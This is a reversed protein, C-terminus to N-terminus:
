SCTCWSAATPPLAHSFSTLQQNPACARTKLRCEGVKNPDGSRMNDEGGYKSFGAGGTCVLDDASDITVSWGDAGRAALLQLLALASCLGGVAM